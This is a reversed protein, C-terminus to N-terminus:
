WGHRTRHGEGPVGDVEMDNVWMGVIQDELNPRLGRVGVMCWCARLVSAHHHCDDVGSDVWSVGHLHLDSPLGHGDGLMTRCNLWV